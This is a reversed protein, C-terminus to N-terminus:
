RPGDQLVETEYILYIWTAAKILLRRKFNVDSVRLFEGLKLKAEGIAHFYVGQQNTDFFGGKNGYHAKKENLMERVRDLFMKLTIERDNTLGPQTLSEISM